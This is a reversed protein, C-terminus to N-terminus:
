VHMVASPIGYAECVMCEITCGRAQSWGELFYVADAEALMQISRGLMEVPSLKETPIYSEIIEADEGHIEHIKAYAKDREEVIEEDTRGKMPQSIFVKM